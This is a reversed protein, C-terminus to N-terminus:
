VTLPQPISVWPTDPPTPHGKGILLFLHGPSPKLRVMAADGGDGGVGEWWVMDPMRGWDDLVGQCRQDVRLYGKTKFTTDANQLTDWSPSIFACLWEILCVLLIGNRLSWPLEKEKFGGIWSGMKSIQKNM